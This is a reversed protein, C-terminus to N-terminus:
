AEEARPTDKEIALSAPKAKKRSAHIKYYLAGFVLACGVWQGTTLPTQFVFASLLVSFFQRTTMITAFVVAGFRKITFSIVIQVVASAMSLALIWWLAEQNRLIFDVSPYLQGMSIAAVFSMLTSFMTTYLVQECIGMSYSKFMLDQWTSTLGDVGLYLLMLLAGIAHYFANAQDDAALRSSIDGALVFVTCGATITLAHAYDQPKHRKALFFTGWLMVPLAKASKALTQLSFSVYKLAEYQCSTAIVNTLSIAAYSRMPASPLSNPETAAIFVFALICTCLRNCLVLFISSSFVESRDPGFGVTMIREQLVGYVLLALTVIVMMAADRAWAAAQPPPAPPPGAVLAPFVVSKMKRDTLCDFKQVSFCIM